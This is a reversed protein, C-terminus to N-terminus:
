LLNLLKDITELEEVVKKLQVKIAMHRAKVAEMQSRPGSKFSEPLLPDFLVVNLYAEDMQLDYMKVLLEKKENLLEEQRTM